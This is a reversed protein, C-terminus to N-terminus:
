WVGKWAATAGVGCPNLCTCPVSLLSRPPPFPCVRVLLEWVGKRAATADAGLHCACPECLVFCAGLPPFLACVQLERLKKRAATADAIKRQLVVNQKAQMAELSQIHATSRQNAKRLRLLEQPLPPPPPPIHPIRTCTRLNLSCSTHPHIHPHTGPSSARTHM